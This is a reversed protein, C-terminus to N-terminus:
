ARRRVQEAVIYDRVTICDRVQHDELPAQLDAVIKALWQALEIDSANEVWRPAAAIM